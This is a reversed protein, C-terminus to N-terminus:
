NLARERVREVRRVLEAVSAVEVKEM